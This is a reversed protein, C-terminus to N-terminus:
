VPGPMVFVTMSGTWVALQDFMEGGDSRFPFREAKLTISLGRKPGSVSPYETSM